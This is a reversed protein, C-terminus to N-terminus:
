VVTPAPCVPVTVAPSTNTTARGSRRARGSGAPSGPRPGRPRRAGRRRSWPPARRRRGRRRAPAGRPRPGRGRRPRAGPARARTSASTAPRASTTSTCFESPWGRGSYRMSTSGRRPWRARGSPRRRPRSPGGPARRGPRSWTAPGSPRPARRPPGPPGPVEALRDLVDRPDRDRRRLPPDTGSLWIALDLLARRGRLDVPALELARRRDRAARGRAERHGLRRRGDLGAEVLHVDRGAVRDPEAALRLLQGLRRAVHELRDEEGDDEDEEDQGRLELADRLREGDHHRQRERQDAHEHREQTVPSVNLMIDIIPTIRRKPRTTFFAIRRMSLAFSRRRSPVSRNRASTSAPWTRSRGIMIVVSAIIAPMSGLASASPSPPPKRAGIDRATIPPRMVDVMRVSM